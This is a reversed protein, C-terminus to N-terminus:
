NFNEVASKEVSICKKYNELFLNFGEIDEKIPEVTTAKADAFVDKSLYDSLSKDQKNIMYAALMAIGWPGGEGATEMVTVPTNTTAMIRQGVGETKFLGGHGLIEDVKVNEQKFLIDLGIGMAGLSTFLHTRMFNALNFNSNSSRVFLPRGEEFHTM